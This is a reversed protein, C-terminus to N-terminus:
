AEAFLNIAKAVVKGIERIQEDIDKPTVFLDEISDKSLGKLFLDIQEMTYGEQLLTEEMCESVITGADVVTPVGIAIVPIKLKEENLENRNNGIGAGPCIGTDTIQITTCLRNVSRSALSDIVLMCCPKVKDIIGGLIEQSEMGTQGMVGPSLACLVRRRGVYEEGLSEQVHRNVKVDDLVFPGLADPTAFRNGLGAVLYVGEQSPVMKELTQAIRASAKDRIKQQRAPSDWRGKQTFELTVYNGIPKGMQRQGQENRIEVTTVRLRGELYQKEQLAVGDVEIKDEPFSERVELALDTRKEMKIEMGAMYVKIWNM